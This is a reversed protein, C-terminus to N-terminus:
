SQPFRIETTFHYGDASTKLLDSRGYLLYLRREISKLGFGSGKSRAVAEADYPNSVRIFLDKQEMWVDLTIEVDEVTQYLGFKIANEIVPQLILPPLNLKDLGEGIEMRTTLRHGFRVQEIELYLKVQVLEEPLPVLQQQNKRITGRLFDGLQQIMLRAKGPDSGILANISNLSNFLFHPQLQASLNNLEAEKALALSAAQRQSEESKSVVISLVWSIMVVCGMVLFGIAMRIPISYSLLSLYSEDSSYIFGMMLRTILLWFVSLFLCWVMLKWANKATPQYYRITSALASSLIALLVNSVLGDTVATEASYGLNKLTFMYILTWIVWFLLYEVRSNRYVHDAQM